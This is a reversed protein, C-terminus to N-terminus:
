NLYDKRGKGRGGELVGLGGRRHGRLGAFFATIPGAKGGSLVYALSQAAATAFFYGWSGQALSGVLSMGVIIWALIRAQLALQGWVQMPSRGYLVGIAVFTALVGQSCGPAVVEGGFVPMLGVILLNALLGTAFFLVLFRRRGFAREITAGAFWLGLVNFFFGWFDVNVFLSTVLQWVEGRWVWPGLGLYRAIPDRLPAAMIYLGFVVAQLVVLNRITPSLRQTIPRM